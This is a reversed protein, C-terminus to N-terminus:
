TLPPVAAQQTNNNNNNDRRHKEGTSKKLIGKKNAAIDADSFLVPMMETTLCGDFLKKWDHEKLTLELQKSQLTLKKPPM